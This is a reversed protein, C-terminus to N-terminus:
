LGASLSFPKDTEVYTKLNGLYIGWHYSCQAFMDTQKKWGAHSFRLEASENGMSIDFVVQTNLWEPTADLIEWVVKKGPVLEVVKIEKFYNGGFSIRYVSGVRAKANNHESWWSAIGKQTTVANYIKEPTSKIFLLHRIDPMAIKKLLYPITKSHYTLQQHASVEGGL